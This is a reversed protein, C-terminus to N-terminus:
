SSPRNRNRRARQYLWYVLAVPAVFVALILIELLGPMM